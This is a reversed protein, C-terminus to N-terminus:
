SPAERVASEATAGQVKQPTPLLNRITRILIQEPSTTQQTVVHSPLSRNENLAASEQQRFIDVDDVAGRLRHPGMEDVTRQLRHTRVENAAQTRRQTRAEPVRESQIEHAQAGRCQEGGLHERGHAGCYKWGRSGNQNAPGACPHLTRSASKM